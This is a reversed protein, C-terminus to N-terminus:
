ATKETSEDIFFLPNSDLVKLSERWLARADLIYSQTGFVLGSRLEPEYLLDAIRDYRQQWGKFNHPRYLKNYTVDNEDTITYYIPPDYLYPPEILEEIAHMSTNYSLSCALMLIQGNYEPVKHFPSNPGCPTDDLRHLVTIEEALLGVASVSHTPHLSRKAQPLLRFTEAITGVCSSTKQLHFVPNEPTVNEWSLAPMLLTGNEGITCLLGEIVTAPGGPVYGFPRLAPHVMLVGGSRVGLKQLDEVFQKIFHKKEMADSTRGRIVPNSSM